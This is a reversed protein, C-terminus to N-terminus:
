SSANSSTYIFVTRSDSMKQFEKQCQIQWHQFLNYDIILLRLSYLIKDPILHINLLCVNSKM